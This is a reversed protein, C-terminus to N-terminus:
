SKIQGICHCMSRLQEDVKGQGALRELGRKVIEITDEDPVCLTLLSKTPLELYITLGGIRDAASITVEHSM